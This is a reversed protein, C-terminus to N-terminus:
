PGYFDPARLAAVRARGAAAAETWVRTAAARAAPKLGYSALPMSEVLPATQPGYMYLNDIFVMRAGTAEGIAVVFQEGWRATKVVSDRDLADCAAFTAAKQLDAPANRQAVVIERGEAVLREATARGTPGCGFIVIRGSMADSRAGGSTWGCSGCSEESRPKSPWDRLM